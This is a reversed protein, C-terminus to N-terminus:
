QPIITGQRLVKIQDDVALVVTSATGEAKVGFDQLIFDVQTGIYKQAQEFNLAPEEGSLNASTTAIPGTLKLLELLVPHNPIRLGISDMGSSVFNGTKESKPVIITLAGPWYKKALLKAAKPLEQIYPEFDEINSAMLILPKKEERHKIKYIKECAKKNDALCGLGWVTDTPYAFVAGKKLLELKQQLQEQSYFM